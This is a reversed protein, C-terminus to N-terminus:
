EVLVRGNFTPVLDSFSAGFKMDFLFADTGPADPVTDRTVASAAADYVTGYLTRVDTGPITVQWDGSQPHRTAAIRGQAFTVSASCDGSTAHLVNGTKDQRFVVTLNPQGGYPIILTRSAYRTTATAESVNVVWTAAMAALVLGVIVLLAIKGTQKM